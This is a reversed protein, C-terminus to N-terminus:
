RVEAPRSGSRTVTEKRLLVPKKPCLESKKKKKKKKKTTRVFKTGHKQGSKQGKKRGKRLHRGNNGATEVHRKWSTL